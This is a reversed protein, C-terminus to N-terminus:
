PARPTAQTGDVIPPIPSRVWLFSPMPLPLRPPPYVTLQKVDEPVFCDIYRGVLDDSHLDNQQQYALNMTDYMRQREEREMAVWWRYMRDLQGRRLRNTRLVFRGIRRAAGLVRRLRWLVLEAGWCWKGLTQKCVDAVVNLDVNRYSDSRFPFAELGKATDWDDMDMLQMHMHMDLSAALPEEEHLSCQLSDLTLAAAASTHSDALKRLRVRHM